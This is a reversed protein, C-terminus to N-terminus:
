KKRVSKLYSTITRSIGEETPFPAKYNLIKLTQTNDFELSGYLRDFLGPMFAQGAKLLIGPLKFM